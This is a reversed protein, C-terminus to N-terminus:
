GDRFPKCFRKWENEWGKQILSREAQKDPSVDLSMRSVKQFIEELAKDAIHYVRLDDLNRGRLGPYKSEVRVIRTDTLAELLYPVAPFGMEVLANITDEAIMPEDPSAESALSNLWRLVEKQTFVTGTTVIRDWQLKAMYRRLHLVTSEESQVNEQSVEPVDFVELERGQADSIRLKSAGTYKWGAIKGQVTLTSHFKGTFEGEVRFKADEPRKVVPYGARRLYRELYPKLVLVDPKYPSGASPQIDEDIKVFVPVRVYQDRSPDLKPRTQLPLDKAPLPPLVKAKEPAGPAPQDRPPAPPEQSLLCAPLAALSIAVAFGLAGRSLACSRPGSRHDIM